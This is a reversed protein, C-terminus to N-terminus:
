LQFREYIAAEIRKRQQRQNLKENSDSNMAKASDFLAKDMTYQGTIKGKQYAKSIPHEPDQIDKLFQEENEPEVLHIIEHPPYGLVGFARVKELTASNYNM